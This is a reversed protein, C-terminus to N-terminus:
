KVSGSAAEHTLVIGEPVFALWAGPITTPTVKGYGLRTLSDTPDLGLSYSLGTDAILRVAGIPASDRVLAGSGGMVTIPPWDVAHLPDSPDEIAVLDTTLGDDLAQLTACPFHGAGIPGTIASPWDSPVLENQVTTFRAIDGITASLPAQKAGTGVRWLRYATDDLQEVRGDAAVIVYERGDDTVTLVSGVLAGRLAAPLTDRVGADLASGAHAVVIPHLASGLPFLSLWQTDVPHAPSRDLGLATVVGSQDATIEHRVGNAIVYDVGGASVLVAGASSLPSPAPGAIWLSTETASRACATWQSSRLAEPGPVDDPAGALDIVAGRPKGLIAKPDVQSVKFSAPDGLLRAATVSTIPHLTGSASFYRAGSTKDVLLAGNDWGPPLAPNMRGLVIAVVIAVVALVAGVVLSPTVSRPEIERGGPTGSMFATVLRQRNFRQANIVDKSSAM